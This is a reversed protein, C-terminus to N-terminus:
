VGQAKALQLRIRDWVARYDDRTLHPIVYALRENREITEERYITWPRHDADDANEEAASLGALDPQILRFAYHKTGRGHPLPVVDGTACAVRHAETHIRPAQMKGRPDHARERM